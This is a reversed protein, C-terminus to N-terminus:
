LLSGVVIKFAPTSACGILGFLSLIPPMCCHRENETRKRIHFNPYWFVLRALIWANDRTCSFGFGQNGLKYIKWFALFGVIEIDMDLKCFLDFSFNIGHSQHNESTIVIDLWSM